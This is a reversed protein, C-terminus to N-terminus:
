ADDDGSSRGPLIGKRILYPTAAVVVIGIILGVLLTRVIDGSGNAIILVVLIAGVAALMPLTRRGLRQLEAREDDM